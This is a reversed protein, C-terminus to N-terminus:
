AAYCRPLPFIDNIGHRCSSIVCISVSPLVSVRVTLSWCSLPFHSSRDSFPWNFQTESFFRAACNKIEPFMFSFFLRFHGLLLVEIQQFMNQAQHLWLESRATSIDTCKRTKQKICLTKLTWRPGAWSPLSTSQTKSQQESLRSTSLPKRAIIVILFACACPSWRVGTM